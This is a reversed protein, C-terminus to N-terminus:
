VLLDLWRCEGDLVVAPHRKRSNPVTGRKGTFGAAGTLIGGILVNQLGIERLEQSRELEFEKLRDEAVAASIGNSILFDRVSSFPEGWIVRARAESIIKDGDM